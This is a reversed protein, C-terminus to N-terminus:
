CIINNKAVKFSIGVVGEISNPALLPLKLSTFIIGIFVGLGLSKLIEM